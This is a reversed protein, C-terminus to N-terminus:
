PGELVESLAELAVEEPRPPRCTFLLRLIMRLM